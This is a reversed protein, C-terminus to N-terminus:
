PTPRNKSGTKQLIARNRKEAPAGPGRGLRSFFWTSETLGLRQRIDRLVRRELNIVVRRSVGLRVAVDRQSAREILRLEFFQRVLPPQCSRWSEFIRLSNRYTYDEEPAFVAPEGSSAGAWPDAKVTERVRLRLHDTLVNSAIVTLYPWSDRRQDRNAAALFRLLIEQSLDEVTCPAHAREPLRRLRSRLFRHLRERVATWEAKAEREEEM